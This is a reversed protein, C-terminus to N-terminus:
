EHDKPTKLSRSSARAAIAEWDLATAVWALFPALFLAPLLLAPAVFLLVLGAMGSIDEAMIQYMEWAWVLVCSGSAWLWVHLSFKSPRLPVKHRRLALVLLAAAVLPGIVMVSIPLLFVRGEQTPVFGNLMLLFVDVVLLSLMGVLAGLPAVFRM